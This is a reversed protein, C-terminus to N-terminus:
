NSFLKSDTFDVVTYNPNPETPRLKGRAVILTHNDKAPGVITLTEFVLKRRPRLMNGFLIHNAKALAKIKEYTRKTEEDSTAM